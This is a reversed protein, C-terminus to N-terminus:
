PPIEEPSAFNSHGQNGHAGEHDARDGNGGVPLRRIRERSGRFMRPYSGLRLFQPLNVPVQLVHEVAQFAGCPLVVSFNGVVWTRTLARQLSQRSARSVQHECPFGYGQCLHAHRQM